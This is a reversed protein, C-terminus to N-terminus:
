QWEITPKRLLEHLHSRYNLWSIAATAFLTTALRDCFGGCWSLWFPLQQTSSGVLLGFGTLLIAVVLAYWFIKLDLKKNLKALIKRSAEPPNITGVYVETPLDPEKIPITQGPRFPEFLMQGNDDSANLILAVNVRELAPPVRHKWRIIVCPYDLCVLGWVTNGHGDDFHVTFKATDIATQREEDAVPISQAILRAHSVAVNETRPTAESNTSGSTTEAAVRLSKRIGDADVSEPRFNSRQLWMKVTNEATDQDARLPKLTLQVLSRM